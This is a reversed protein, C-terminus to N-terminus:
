PGCSNSGCSNINTGKANINAFIQEASIIGGSAGCSQEGDAGSQAGMSPEGEGRARKLCNELNIAMQEKDELLKQEGYKLWATYIPNYRPPAFTVTKANFSKDTEIEKDHNVLVRSDKPITTTLAVYFDNEYSIEIPLKKFKYKDEFIESIWIYPNDTEIDHIINRPLLKLTNVDMTIIHAESTLLKTDTEKPLAILVDLLEPSKRVFAVKGGLPLINGEKDRLIVNQNQKVSTLSPDSIVGMALDKTNDFQLEIKQTQIFNGQTPVVLNYKTTDKKHPLFVVLIATALILFAILIFSKLTM